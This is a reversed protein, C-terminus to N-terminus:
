DNKVFPYGIEIGVKKYKKIKREPFTEKTSRHTVNLFNKKITDYKVTRVKEEFLRVNSFVTYVQFIAVNCLLFMTHRSFLTSKKITTTEWKKKMRLRM